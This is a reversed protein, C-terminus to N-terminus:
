LFFKSGLHKFFMTGELVEPQEKRQQQPKENELNGDDYGDGDENVGDDVDILDVSKLVYQTFLTM